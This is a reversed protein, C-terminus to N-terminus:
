RSFYERFDFVDGSRPICKMFFYVEKVDKAM